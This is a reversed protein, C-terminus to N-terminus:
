WPVEDQYKKLGKNEVDQSEWCTCCLNDNPSDNDETYFKKCVKCKYVETSEPEERDDCYKM